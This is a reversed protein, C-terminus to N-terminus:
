RRVQLAGGFVQVIIFYSLHHIDAFYAVGLLFVTVSSGLGTVFM